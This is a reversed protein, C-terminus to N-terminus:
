QEQQQHIELIQEVEVEVGWDVQVQHIIQETVPDEVVVRVIHQQEMLVLLYETEELLLVAEQARVQQVPVVVEVPVMQLMETIQAAQVEVLDKALLEQEELLMGYPVVVELAVRLDPHHLQLIHVIHVEEEVVL